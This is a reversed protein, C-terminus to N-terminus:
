LKVLNGDCLRTLWEYGVVPVHDAYPYNCKDCLVQGSARVWEGADVRKMDPKYPRKRDTDEM